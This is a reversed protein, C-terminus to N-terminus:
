APVVPLRVVWHRISSSTGELLTRVRGVVTSLDWPRSLFNVPGGVQLVAAYFDDGFEHAILLMSLRPHTRRIVRLTALTERVSFLPRQHLPLRGRRLAALTETLRGAVADLDWILLRVAPHQSLLDPLRVPDDAVVLKYPARERSLAVAFAQRLGPDRECLLVPGENM